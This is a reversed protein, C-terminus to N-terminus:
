IKLFHTAVQGGSAAVTHTFRAYLVAKKLGNLSFRFILFECFLENTHMMKSVGIIQIEDGQGKM